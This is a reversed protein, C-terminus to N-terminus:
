NTEEKYILFGIKEPHDKLLINKNLGRLLWISFFDGTGAAIMVCGFLVTSYDNIIYAIITPIIGLIITPMLLTIRYQNANLSETCHCYPTLAKWKVGFHVSKFGNKVFLAFCIGHILEHIVIAVFMAIIFWYTPYKVTAEEFGDNLIYFFPLLVLAFVICFVVCSIMNVRGSDITKEEM